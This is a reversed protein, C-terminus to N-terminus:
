GIQDVFRDMLNEEPQGCQSFLVQPPRMFFALKITAAAAINAPTTLAIGEPM